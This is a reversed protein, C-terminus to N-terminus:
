LIKIEHTLEKLEQLSQQFNEDCENAELDVWFM